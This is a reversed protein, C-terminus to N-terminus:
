HRLWFIVPSQAIGWSKQFFADFITYIITVILKKKEQHEPLSQRHFSSVWDLGDRTVGSYKVSFFSYM